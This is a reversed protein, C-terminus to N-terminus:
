RKRFFGRNRTTPVTATPLIVFANFTTPTHTNIPRPFHTPTGLLPTVPTLNLPLTVTPSSAHYVSRICPTGLWNQADRVEYNQGETLGIGSINVSTTSSGQWNLVIINARGSEYANPQITVVNAAPISNNFAGNLEWGPSAQIQAFTARPGGDVDFVQSGTGTTYFVDKDVTYGAGLYREIQWMKVTDSWAPNASLEAYVNNTMTLAKWGISWELMTYDNLAVGIFTNGAILINTHGISSMGLRNNNDDYSVNSTVTAADIPNHIADILIGDAYNWWTVNGDFTFGNAYVTEAYAKMGGSFNKFSLNNRVTRTGTQNQGYIATGRISNGDDTDYLGVGWMVCGYIESTTASQPWWIGANGVDHVVMNIAKCGVGTLNLGPGLVSSANTRTATASNYIEYGQHIQYNGSAYVAGNIVAREYPYQRITVPNGLTGAVTATVSYSGGTGYTGGRLYITDGAVVTSNSLGYQISWPSSISGANIQLGTPAIFYPQNLHGLQARHTGDQSVSAFRLLAPSWAIGYWFNQEATTGATWNVGDSSWMARNTGTYSVATFLGLEPAWAISIWDGFPPNRSTWNVGDPSTMVRKNFGTNSTDAVAAFLHLSPSWAISLWDDDTAAAQPVWTVGNTSTMVRCVDNGGGAVFIGLEPSWALGAYGTAPASSSAAWVVGDSSTMTQSAGFSAVACFKGLEPSWVVNRWTSAAGATQSTWAIGNTSTMVRHTGDASVACFKGLSPAWCVSVWYNAEAATRPTWTIGDPSTAVRNAGTGSVACFLNLAPSWCVGTWENADLTEPVFTLAGHALSASLALILAPLKVRVFALSVSHERRDSARQDM